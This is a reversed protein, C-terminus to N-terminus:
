RSKTYYKEKGRRVEKILGANQLLVINNSVQQISKGLIEAIQSVSHKGDCLGYIKKRLSSSELVRRQTAEITEKHGMRLIEAIEQLRDEIRHLALLIETQEHKTM